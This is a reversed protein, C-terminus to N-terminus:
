TLFIRYEPEDEVAWGAQGSSGLGGREGTNEMKSLPLKIPEITLSLLFLKGVWQCYGASLLNLIIKFIHM